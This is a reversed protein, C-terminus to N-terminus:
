THASYKGVVADKVVEEEEKMIANIDAHKKARDNFIGGLSLFDTIPEIVIRGKESIVSARQLKHLGLQRRLVAPITIQGQSTISVTYM